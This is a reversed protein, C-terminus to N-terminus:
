EGPSKGIRVVLFTYQICVPLTKISSSTAHSLSFAAVANAVYCQKYKMCRDFASAM